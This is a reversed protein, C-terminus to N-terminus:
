FAPRPVVEPQPTDDLDPLFLPEDPSLSVMNHGAAATNLPQSPAPQTPEDDSDTLEIVDETLVFPVKRCSRRATAVRNNREELDWFEQVDLTPDM